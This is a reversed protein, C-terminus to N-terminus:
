IESAILGNCHQLYRNCIGNCINIQLVERGGTKCADLETEVYLFEPKWTSFRSYGRLSVRTDM